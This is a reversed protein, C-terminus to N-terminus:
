FLSLSPYLCSWCESSWNIKKGKLALKQVNDTNVLGALQKLIGRQKDKRRLELRDLEQRRSSREKSFQNRQFCKWRTWLGTKRSTWPLAADKGPSVTASALLAGVVICSPGKGGGKRTRESPLDVWGGDRFNLEELIPNSSNMFCCAPM